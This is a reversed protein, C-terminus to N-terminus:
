AKRVAYFAEYETSKAFTEWAGNRLGYVEFIAQMEEFHANIGMRYLRTRAPTSGIALIMAEPHRETFAIVIAAITALIKQTDGNDSRSLDDIEKTLRNVDGFGLNYFNHLNTETFIVAKPIAGKPGESIFAFAFENNAERVIEYRPLHM